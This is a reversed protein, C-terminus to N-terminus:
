CNFVYLAARSGYHIITMYSNNLSSKDLVFVFSTTFDESYSIVSVNSLSFDSNRISVSSNTRGMQVIVTSQIASSNTIIASVSELLRFLCSEFSVTSASLFNINKALVSYGILHIDDDHTIFRLETVTVNVVKEFILRTKNLLQIVVEGHFLYPLVELHTKNYVAFDRVTLSHEGNLFFLTINDDGNFHDGQAYENITLCPKYPCDPNPSHPTVYYVAAYSLTTHPSPLGWCLILSLLWVSASQCCM